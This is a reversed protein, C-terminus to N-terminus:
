IYKEEVCFILEKVNFSTSSSSRGYVSMSHFYYGENEVIQFLCHMPPLKPTKPNWQVNSDFEEGYRFISSAPFSIRMNLIVNSVIVEDGDLVHFGYDNSASNADHM